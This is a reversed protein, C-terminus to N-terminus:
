IHIERNRRRYSIKSGPQLLITTTIMQQYSTPLMMVVMQQNRKSRALNSSLRSKMRHERRLLSTLLHKEFYRDKVTLITETGPIQLMFKIKNDNAKNHSNINRCLYHLATYGNDTKAVVLEKGGVDILIKMVDNTAGRWCAHHLATYEMWSYKMM